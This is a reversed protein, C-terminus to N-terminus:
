GKKMPMCMCSSTTSIDANRWVKNYKMRYSTAEVNSGQLALAQSLGLLSWGNNPLRHLDERYITEAEKPRGVTLLAAALTHRTPQIWDPPEDYGLADEAKVALRMEALGQEAQGQKFLVEGSALHKAVELVDQAKNLGVGDDTPVGKRALAFAALELNAERFRKKAAFAIARDAHRMARSVPFYTAYDPTALIADWMGFRKMLDLPMYLASDVLGAMDSSNKTPMLQDLDSLASLAAKKHGIMSAAYALMMRNHVLYGVYTPSTGHRKGFQSDMRIAIANQTVADQWRGIRVYIHSPMHVMHGLAPQLTCLIDAAHEAVEPHQSEEMVHILLHNGLPHLPDLVLVQKLATVADLTGAVPEGNPKWQNWPNLDMVSEAYLAGIDADKPNTKWLLAMRDSYARDLKSRDIPADLSYRLKAAGVLDSEILTCDLLSAKNVAEVAIRSNTKDVNTYNIDPGAAIAVGWWAM